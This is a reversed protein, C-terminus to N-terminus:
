RDGKALRKYYDIEEQSKWEGCWHNQQVEPYIPLGKTPSAIPANRRCKFNWNEKHCYFCTECVKIVEINTEM